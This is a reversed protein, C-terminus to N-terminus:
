FGCFEIQETDIKSLSPRWRHDRNAFPDSKDYLASRASAM